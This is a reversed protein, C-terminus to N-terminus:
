KTLILKGQRTRRLQYREGDHLITVHERAQLLARSEWIIERQPRDAIPRAKNKSCTACVGGCAPAASGGCRDDAFDTQIFEIKKM